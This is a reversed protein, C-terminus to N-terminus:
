AIPPPNLPIYRPGARSAPLIVLPAAGQSIVPVTASRALATASSCLAECGANMVGEDPCCDGPDDDSVQEPCHATGAGDDIAISMGAAAWAQSVVALLVLFGLIRAM